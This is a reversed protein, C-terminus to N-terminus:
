PIEQPLPNTKKGLFENIKQLMILASAEAKDPWAFV